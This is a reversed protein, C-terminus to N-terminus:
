GAWLSLLTSLHFESNSTYIMVIVFKLLLPIPGYSGEEVRFELMREYFWFSFSEDHLFYFM